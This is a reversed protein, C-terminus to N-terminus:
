EIVVTRSPEFLPATWIPIALKLEACLMANHITDLALEPCNRERSLHGLMIAQPLAKRQGMAWCLLRATQPNSLHYRSAYNPHRRLLDLDHNSEIYIMDADVLEKAVSSFDSLDTCVLIKRAATGSGCRISFAFNPVGPAHPVRIPTIEFCLIRTPGDGFRNVMPHEDCNFLDIEGWQRKAVLEHTHLGMGRKILAKLSAHHMHDSHSHSVLVAVEGRIADLVANCARQSTFGIDVLLTAGEHQVELCNGASSSIHTRFQM